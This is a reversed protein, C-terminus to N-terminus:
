GQMSIENSGTRMAVFENAIHTKMTFVVGLDIVRVM